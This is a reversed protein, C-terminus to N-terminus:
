VLDVATIVRGAGSEIFKNGFVEAFIKIAESGTCHSPAVFRVGLEKLRLAKKRISSADDMSLHFGGAVLLVEQNFISRARAVIDVIGPHACGTLVIVGQDSLVILAQENKVFSCMEGTSLCSRAIMCPQDVQRVDAGHKNLARKFGSPFTHILHVAIGSRIEALKLAGGVHDPHDHSLVLADIQQLDIHLAALNAIILDDYRGADFLITPGVGEVLCGFGWDTRLRAGHPINDYVVTLKIRGIEVPQALSALRAVSEPDLDRNSCGSGFGPLFSCTAAGLMIRGAKAFAERRTVPQM